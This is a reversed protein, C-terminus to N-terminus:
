GPSTNPPLKLVRFGVDRDWGDHCRGELISRGARRIREMCLASVSSFGLEPAETKEALQVLIFRRSGGDDANSAMVAHATTGSGAFFDLVTIDKRAQMDIIRRIMSLPKKGNQFVVGGERSLNKTESAYDWYTGRMEKKYLVGDREVSVDKLWALLRFNGGKYFQEYV